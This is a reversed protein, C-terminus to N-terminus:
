QIPWAMARQSAMQGIPRKMFCNQSLPVSVHFLTQQERQQKSNRGRKARCHNGVCVAFIRLLTEQAHLCNGEGVNGEGFVRELLTFVECDGALRRQQFLGLGCRGPLVPRTVVGPVRRPPTTWLVEVHGGDGEHLELLSPELPHAAALGGLRLVLVLAALSRM